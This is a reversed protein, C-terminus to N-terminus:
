RAHRRIAFIKMFIAIVPDVEDLCLNAFWYIGIRDNETILIISNLLPLRYFLLQLLEYSFVSKISPM